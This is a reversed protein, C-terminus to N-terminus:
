DFHGEIYRTELFYNTFFSADKLSEASFIGFTQKPCMDFFNLLELIQISSVIIKQLVLSNISEKSKNMFWTFRSKNKISKVNQFSVSVSFHVLKHDSSNLFIILSTESKNRITKPNYFWGCWEDLADWSGSSNSYQHRCCLKEDFLPSDSPSLDSQSNM